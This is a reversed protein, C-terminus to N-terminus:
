NVAVPTLRDTLTTGDGVEGDNNLGWCSARSDTTLGCSHEGGANMGAFALATTTTADLSPPSEPGTPSEADERCAPVLLTLAFALLSLSSVAYRRM